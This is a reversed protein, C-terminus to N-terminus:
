PTKVNAPAAGAAPATMGTPIPPPDRTQAAEIILRNSADEIRQQMLVRFEARPLGAPIADLIEVIITGPYRQLTRRPWYLGSNLAMPVCPLGLGEYLAVAGSKYDPDSGPSRRTGEPFILIERGAAAREKADSVLKRLAAPGRARQVFVHEFKRSFWGYFPIHTLEAKMVLAPDSFIPILAFTDWASQHKSAVLYPVKPLKERGRVEMRTGVIWKLLWLCTIAHAKLGMMAYRRPGFLLFSGLIVFLATTVYFVAFFIISRLMGFFVGDFEQRASARYKPSHM